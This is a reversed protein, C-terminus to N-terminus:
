TTPSSPFFSCFLPPRVRNLLKTRLKQNEEKLRQIDEQHAKKSEEVFEINSKHDNESAHPHILHANHTPLRCVNARPSKRLLQIKKHLDM